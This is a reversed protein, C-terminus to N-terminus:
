NLNDDESFTVRKLHRNMSFLLTVLALALFTFVVGGGIGPTVKSLDLASQSPYPQPSAAQFLGSM